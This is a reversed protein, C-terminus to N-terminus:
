CHSRVTCYSPFITPRPLLYRNTDICVVRYIAVGVLQCWDVLDSVHDFSSLSASLQTPNDEKSSGHCVLRYIGDGALDCVGHLALHTSHLATLAVSGGREGRLFIDTTSFLSACTVLSLVGGDGKVPLLPLNCVGDRAVSTRKHLGSRRVTHHTYGLSVSGGGREGVEVVALVWIAWVRSLSCYLVSYLACPVKSVSTQARGLVPEQKRTSCHM